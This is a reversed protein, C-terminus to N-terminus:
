KQICTVFRVVRHEMPINKFQKIINQRARLTRYEKSDASQIDKLAELVEKKEKTLGEEGEAVIKVYFM